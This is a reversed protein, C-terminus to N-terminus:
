RRSSHRRWTKRGRAARRPLPLDPAVRLRDRRRPRRARDPVARRDVRGHHLHPDLRAHLHEPDVVGRDCDAAPGRAADRLRLLPHDARRPRRDAGRRPREPRGTEGSQNAEMIADHGTVHVTTERAATRTKAANLMAERREERQVDAAAPRTSSWSPRTGTRRSTRPAAQRSSALQGACRSEGRASAGDRRRIAESKTADGKTKFVVVNPPRDGTGSDISRGSARRTPPTAPSRSRSSGASAVGPLRRLRRLRHARALGLHDAKRHHTTVHALRALM